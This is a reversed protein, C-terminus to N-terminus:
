VLRRPQYILESVDDFQYNNLVNANGECCISSFKRADAYTEFAYLCRLDSRRLSM